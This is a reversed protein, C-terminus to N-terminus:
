PQFWAMQNGYSIFGYYGFNGATPDDAAIPSCIEVPDGGDAGILWLSSDKVYLIHGGDKSWRPQCIGQGASTLPHAGTGDANEIWLTRSAVWATLDKGNNFGWVNYGLDRAAVFAIRSGDKSLSPDISVCCPPNPLDKIQGSKVNILTLSKGSWVIRGGGKVMLIDDQPGLSLWGQRNLGNALLTPKTNGLRLSCVPMGDAALSASHLPDVWYLLGKGDPWWGALEIGAPLEEIGAALDIVAQPTVLRQVPQGGDVDITYLADSRDEPHNSDFPLTVSYALTKGDPSWVPASAVANSLQCPKGEAPVLWIGNQGGVSLVDDTPSWSFQSDSSTPAEVQHAETGAWRVLWLTGTTSQPNTVCMYALWEGDHSWAPRSAQGSDTIQTTTDTQGDLAFLLNQCVIALRGQGKLAAANVEPAPGPSSSPMWVGAGARAPVTEPGTGSLGPGCVLSIATMLILAASVSSLILKRADCRM